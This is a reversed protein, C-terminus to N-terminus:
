FEYDREVKAIRVKFTKYWTTRGKNRAETHDVNIKWNKIAELSDWYSITIGIEEKVSEVGLFGKQKKALALMKKATVNYGNDIHTRISTFIVAYYPTKPTNAIM